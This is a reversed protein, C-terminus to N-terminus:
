KAAQAILLDLENNAAATVQLLFDRGPEIEFLLSKRVGFCRLRKDSSIPSLPVGSNRDILEIWTRESSSVRFVGGSGPSFAMLGGFTDPPNADAKALAVPRLKAQPM